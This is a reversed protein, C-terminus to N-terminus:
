VLRKTGFGDSNGQGTWQQGRNDHFEARYCGGGSGRGQLEKFSFCLWGQLLIFMNM